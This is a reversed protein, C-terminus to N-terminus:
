KLLKALMIKECLQLPMVAPNLMMKELKQQKKIHNFGIKRYFQFINKSSGLGVTYFFAFNKGYNIKYKTKSFYPKIGLEKLLNMIGLAFSKQIVGIKVVKRNYFRNDSKSYVQGVYVCGEDDFLARLYSIKISKNGNKIWNPVKHNDAGFKIFFNVIESKTVYLVYNGKQYKREYISIKANPFLIRIEKAVFYILKLNSNNFRLWPYLKPYDKSSYRFSISGDGQLHGVINAIIKLKKNGFKNKIKM